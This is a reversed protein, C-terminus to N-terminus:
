TCKMQAARHEISVFPYSCLPVFPCGAKSIIGTNDSFLKETNSLLPYSKATNNKKTAMITGQTVLTICLLQFQHMLYKDKNDTM